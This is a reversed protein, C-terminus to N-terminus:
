DGKPKWNARRSWGKIFVKQSPKAEIIRNYYDMQRDCIKQLLEAQDMTNCRMLTDPGVVGDVDAGCARQLIKIATKVGCNVSIDFVKTAVLTSLSEMYHQWYDVRYINIASEKTLNKIDLHPYQRKCIGFNTEGGTDNPNNVYGGEHELIYPIAFDFKESM